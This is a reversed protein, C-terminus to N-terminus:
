ASPSRGADTQDTVLLQRVRDMLVRPNFPKGVYEVVGAGAGRALDEESTRASLVMVPIHATSEDERLRRLTEWGDVVPLMLDLLVLDPQERRALEVATEGDGAELVEFSQLELNVRCLERIHPEDDVVLVRGLTM